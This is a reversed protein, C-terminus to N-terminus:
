LHHEYCAGLDPLQLTRNYMQVLEENRKLGNYYGMKRYTIIYRQVMWCLVQVMHRSFTLTPGLRGMPSWALDCLHGIRRPDLQCGFQPPPGHHVWSDQALVWASGCTLM